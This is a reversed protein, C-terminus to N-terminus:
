HRAEAEKGLIADIINQCATKGNPPLLYENYFAQREEKKVDNGSIVVEQIFAEIDQKNEGIYHLEYARKAFCNLNEGQNGEAGRKLHMVPKCAYLYEITFSSCDHIMADSTMFFDIYQGLEIQTNEMSAWQAYYTDTREKGWFEYLKSLLLPHPKFLFQVHDKYKEALGLMESAYEMFTSYRLHDNSASFSYHPAWIMRKKKRNQKKWLDRYSSRPLLFDDMMPVGTVKINRGKNEMILSLDQACPQNEFYYQWCYNHLPQNCIFDTKINHFGYSVYALLAYKNKLFTHLKEFEWLYPKSYFIVDAKGYKQLRENPEVYKYEYGKKELYTLVDKVVLKNEVNSMVRIMPNFRPHERMQLYLRETKWMGLETIVFIVDIRAKKRIQKVKYPTFIRTYYLYGIRGRIDKYLRRLGM